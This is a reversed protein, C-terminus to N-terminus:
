YTPRRADTCKGDAESFVTKRCAGLEMDWMFCLNRSDAPLAWRKSQNLPNSPIKAKFDEAQRNYLCRVQNGDMLPGKEGGLRVACVRSERSKAFGSADPSFPFSVSTGTSERVM